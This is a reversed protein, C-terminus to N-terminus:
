KVRRAARRKQNRKHTVLELHDERWCKRNSCLHDLQKKPPIYGNENTWAVKHVACTADNISIRGYGGGRGTGSTPGQWEYCPTAHGRDVVISRAALRCRITSRRRVPGIISTVKALIDLYEQANPDLLM